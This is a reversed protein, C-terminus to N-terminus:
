IVRQLPWILVKLQHAYHLLPQTDPLTVGHAWTMTNVKSELEAQWLPWRIHHIDGRYLHRRKDLTYLCYRETFWEEVSGPQTPTEQSLPRYRAQYDAPPAGHHTRHSAYITMDGEHAVRMQANFYPLHFFARALAVAVPSSADLSFFYVGPIGQARVYTRVNLEVTASLGPVEPLGRLRIHAMTFPVVGVWCKGEYTDLELEPPILSRLQEPKIPWHSFLLDNWTQTMVWRMNPLPYPRHAINELLIQM